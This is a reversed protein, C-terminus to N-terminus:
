MLCSKEWTGQNITRTAPNLCFLTGVFAVHPLTMELDLVTVMISLGLVQVHTQVKLVGEGINIGV